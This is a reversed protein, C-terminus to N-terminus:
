HKQKSPSPTIQKHLPGVDPCALAFFVHVCTLSSDEKCFLRNKDNIVINYTKNLSQDLVVVADPLTTQIKFQPGFYKRNFNIKELTMELRDAVFDQIKLGNSEVYDKVKQHVDDRIAVSPGIRRRKRNAIERDREKAIEKESINKHLSMSM